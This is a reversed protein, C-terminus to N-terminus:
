KDENKVFHEVYGKGWEISHKAYKMFYRIRENWMYIPMYGYVRKSFGCKYKIEYSDTSFSEHIIEVIEDPDNITEMDVCNKMIYEYCENKNYSEFMVENKGFRKTDAYVVYTDNNTAEIRVNELMSM